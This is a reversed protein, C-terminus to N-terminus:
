RIEIFNMSKMKQILSHYISFLLDKFHIQKKREQKVPYLSKVNPINLVQNFLPINQWFDEYKVCYIKYNREEDEKTYNDFFEELKYLDKKSSLVDALHIEGNNDCMIHKLHNVNPGHPFALRSYIVELPNKYIFIVKYNHLQTEPIMVHNFWESYINQSTNKNGVYTLKKPPFRDHIHEVNGFNSLYNYLVTSGSGGYSCIYYTMQKNFYSPPIIPQKKVSAKSLYDLTFRTNRNINM